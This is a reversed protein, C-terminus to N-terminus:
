DNGGAFSTQSLTINKCTNTQGYSPTQIIDSGTQSGPGMNRRPSPPRQGPTETSPDRYISGQFLLRYADQQFTKKNYYFTRPWHLHTGKYFYAIFLINTIKVCNTFQSFCYANHSKDLFKLYKYFCLIIHLVIIVMIYTINATKCIGKTHLKVWKPLTYLRKQNVYLHKM